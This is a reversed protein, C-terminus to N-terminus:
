VLGDIDELRGEVKGFRKEAEQFKKLSNELHSGVLRFSEGFRQHEQSLRQIAELIERASEEVRLGKLGLLITQLYAYFSNPSVPIIRRGLAYQFLGTDGDEDEKIITEYYVNEAPIYMLAFDFTGEDPRVYKESIADVHIRVDRIFQRRAAKREDDSAAKVVRQFNELPFKADVPVIGSYLNIIADVRQGDRFTYQLTYHSPPLIQALLDGLFLEGLSGRLKPARLINQLDGLQKGMDTMSQASKELEGLQKSVQSIVRAANDLRADMSQRTADLNQSLGSQIQLLSSRLSEITQNTQRSGDQMQNQLLQLAPDQQQLRQDLSSRIWLAALIIAVVLLVIGAILYALLPDM